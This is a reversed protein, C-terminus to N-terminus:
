VRSCPVISSHKSLLRESFATLDKRASGRLCCHKEIGYFANTHFEYSTSGERDNWQECDVEGGWRFTKAALVQDTGVCCAFLYFAFYKLADLINMSLRFSLCGSIHVFRPNKTYYSFFAEDRASAVVM